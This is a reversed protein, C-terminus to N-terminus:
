FPSDFELRRFWSTRYKGKCRKFLYKREKSQSRHFGQYIFVFLFLRRLAMIGCMKTLTTTLIGSTDRSEEETGRVGSRSEGALQARAGPGNVFLHRWEEAGRARSHPFSGYITMFHAPGPRKVPGTREISSSSRCSCRWLINIIICYDISFWSLKTSNFPISEHTCTHSQHCVFCLM